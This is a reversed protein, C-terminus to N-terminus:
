SKPRRGGQAGTLRPRRYVIQQEQRGVRFGLPGQQRRGDKRTGALRLGLLRHGNPAIPKTRLYKAYGRSLDVTTRDLSRVGRGELFDIFHGAAARYRDITAVSSHAVFEHYDLWQLLFERPAMPKFGLLTPAHQHLQASVQAAASQADDLSCGVPRRVTQGDEIYSLWFKDGRQVVAVKGCREIVRHVAAARAPTAPASSRRSALPRPYPVINSRAM